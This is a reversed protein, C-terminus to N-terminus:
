PGLHASDRAVTNTFDYDYFYKAIENSLEGVFLAEFQRESISTTPQGHNKPFSFEIPGKAFVVVGDKKMDYVSLEYEARGKFLTSGEHLRYTNLDIGVVKDVNLARGIELYDIEDYHNDIWDEVDSPHVIKIDKIEKVLKNRLARSIMSSSNDPGYAQTDSICVIAVKQGKLGKYEADVKTGKIMYMLQSAFGVCGANTSLVLSLLLFGCLYFTRMQKGEM